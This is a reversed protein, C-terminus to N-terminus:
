AIGNHRIPNALLAAPLSGAMRAFKVCVFFIARRFISGVLCGEFDPARHRVLRSIMRGEDPVTSAPASPSRPVVWPIDGGLALDEKKKPHLPELWPLSVPIPLPSHPFLKSGDIM